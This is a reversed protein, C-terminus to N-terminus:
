VGLKKALKISAKSLDAVARELADMQQNIVDISQWLPQLQAHKRQAEQLLPMWDHLRSAMGAYEESALQNLRQLHQWHATQVEFQTGALSALSQSLEQVKHQLVEAHLSRAACARALTEQLDSAAEHHGPSAGMLDSTTTSLADEVDLRSCASGGKQAGFHMPPTSVPLEASPALTLGQLHAEEALVAANNQADRGNLDLANVLNNDPATHLLSERSEEAQEANFRGARVIYPHIKELADFCSFEPHGQVGLVRDQYEWAEVYATPSTALTCAGEPVRTVQDGHSELLKLTEPPAETSLGAEAVAKKFYAKCRLAPLLQVTEVILAFTSSPNPQVQGGLSRALIQHGFCIGVLKTKSSGKEQVFSRIWVALEQIWPQQDYASSASGSIFIAAYRGADELCPFEGKHCRFVDWQSESGYASFFYKEHGLWKRAKECDLFALTAVM